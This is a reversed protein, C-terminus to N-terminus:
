QNRLSWYRAIEGEKPSTLTADRRAFFLLQTNRLEGPAASYRSFKGGCRRVKRLHRDTSLASSVDGLILNVTAVAAVGEM